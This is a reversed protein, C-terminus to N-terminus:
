NRGEPTARHFASRGMRPPNKELAEKREGYMQFPKQCTLMANEEQPIYAYGYNGRVPPDPIVENGLATGDFDEHVKKRLEELKTRDWGEPLNEGEPAASLARIAGINEM